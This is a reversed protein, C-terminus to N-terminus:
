NGRYRRTAVVTANETAPPSGPDAYTDSEVADERWRGPESRLDDRGRECDRYRLLRAYPAM